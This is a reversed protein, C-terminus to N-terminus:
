SIIKRKNISIHHGAIAKYRADKVKGIEVRLMLRFRAELSELQM